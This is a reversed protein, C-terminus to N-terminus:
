VLTAVEGAIEQMYSLAPERNHVSANLMRAIGTPLPRIHVLVSIDLERKSEPPRCWGEPKGGEHESNLNSLFHGAAM